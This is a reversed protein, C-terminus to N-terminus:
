CATAASSAASCGTLMSTDRTRSRLQVGPDNARVGIKTIMRTNEQFPTTSPPMVSMTAVFM